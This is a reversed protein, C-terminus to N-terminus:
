VLGAVRFAQVVEQISAAERIRQLKGAQEPTLLQEFQGNTQARVDGIRAALARMELVLRGASAADADPAGLLQDLARQHRQLEEALPRLAADRAQIMMLLAEIQATNLELVTAVAALPPPLQPEEAHIPLSHALFVLCAAAISKKM